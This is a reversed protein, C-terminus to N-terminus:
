ESKQHNMSTSTGLDALKTPHARVGNAPIKIGSRKQRGCHNACVCLQGFVVSNSMTSRKATYVKTLFSLSDIRKNKM